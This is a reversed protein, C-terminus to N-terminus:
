GQSLRLRRTESSSWGVENGTKSSNERLVGAMVEKASTCESLIQGLSHSGRASPGHRDHHRRLAGAGKM